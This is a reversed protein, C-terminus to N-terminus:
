GTGIRGAALRERHEFADAFQDLEVKSMGIERGRTRWNSVAGDVEAVIERARKTKIGFYAAAEMLPDLAAVPGSTDSIWTRFERVRDPFPNVDFAPSLAWRGDGQHLFGHNQLHDDLNTILVSFAIRRWLEELEGTLNAGHVRLADVIETYTRPEPDRPSVGLLTAASVYPIRLGGERDFRTIIAVPLGESEVLSAEAARVGADGAIRLALVEGKTVAREDSVSPFKGIALHGDPTLISCKPRLGGLSTGRGRLYDLDAMTEEDREMAQSSAVLQALSVEPPTRRRGDAPVRQFEGSEDRFRLAGVRSHDDVALLFDLQNLPQDSAQGAIRGEARQKAHHRLIVRRGWGDPETDAIAGHFITDDRHARKHFQPGTVLRLQAPDVAFRGPSELWSAAYAFSASERAGQLNHHLHGVLHGQKGIHVPISRRV